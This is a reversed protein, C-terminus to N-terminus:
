GTVFVRVHHTGEATKTFKYEEGGYRISEVNKATVFRHDGRKERNRSRANVDYVSILGKQNPDFKRGVGVVGVGVHMEATMKRLTGDKKTFTVGFFHGGTGELIRTVFQEKQTDNEFTHLPQSM